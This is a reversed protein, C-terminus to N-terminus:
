KSAIKVYNPSSWHCVLCVRHCHSSYNTPTDCHYHYSHITGILVLWAQRIDYDLNEMAKLIELGRTARGRSGFLRILAMFTEHVPRLGASLERRLAEMAAQEDGNLAHSVVLGHFSRPGPTLGAAVMDYIIRSVGASDRNRARDMLEEMFTFRLGNELAYYIDDGGGGGEKASKKKRGRKEPASASVAARVTVTRPSSTTLHFPFRNYGYYHCSYSGPFLFTSM